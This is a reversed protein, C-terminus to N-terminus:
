LEISVFTFIAAAGTAHATAMSTGWKYVLDTDSKIGLSLIKDGPAVYDVASGYNSFWGKKYSDDVAAICHTQVNACPYINSADVNDNGAAAFVQIGAENAGKLQYFIAFADGNWGLSLNILSGRFHFPDHKYDPDKDKNANHEKIVDLIAQAIQAKTGGKGNNNTIKVNIM